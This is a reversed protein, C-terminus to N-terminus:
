ARMPMASGIQYEGAMGVHHRGAIRFSTADATQRRRRPFATRVHRRRCSPPSRRSRRPPARIDRRADRCASPSSKARMVPSSSLTATLPVMFSSCHAASRPSFNSWQTRPSGLLRETRPSVMLAPRRPESLPVSNYIAALAMDGVRIAGVIRDAPKHRENDASCAGEIVAAANRDM